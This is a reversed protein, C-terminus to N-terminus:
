EEGLVAKIEAIAQVTTEFQVGHIGLAQAAEVNEPRDDLFVAEEPSVGLRELTLYYIRPDPKALREEASIVILDVANDLGLRQNLAERMDPWANSLIATKYRPRLSCLFGALEANLADGLWFEYSLQALTPEDLGLTEGVYRWIDQTTAGGVSARRAVASGFVLDTLQDRTISLRAAWRERYSDDVDLILVSGFDVIVARISM